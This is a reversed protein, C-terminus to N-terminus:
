KKVPVKMYLKSEPNNFKLITKSVLFPVYFFRNFSMGGIKNKVIIINLINNKKSLLGALQGSNIALAIL